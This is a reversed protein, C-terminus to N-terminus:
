TSEAKVDLATLAKKLIPLVTQPTLLREQALEALDEGTAVVAVLRPDSPDNIAKLSQLVSPSTEVQLAQMPKTTAVSGVLLSLTRVERSRRWTAVAALSIGLSCMGHAWWYAGSGPGGFFFFVPVAANLTLAAALLTSHRDDFRDALRSFHLAALLQVAVVVVVVVATSFQEPKLPTFFPTFFLTVAAVAAAVVVLVSITRWVGSRDLRDRTALLLVLTPVCFLASLQGSAGFEKGTDDFFAGPSFLGHTLVLLGAATFAAAVLANQTFRLRVSMVLSVGAAATCLLGSSIMVAAILWPSSFNGAGTFGLVLAPGFSALGVVALLQNTSNSFREVM